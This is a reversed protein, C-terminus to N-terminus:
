RIQLPQTFNLSVEDTYGKGRRSLVRLSVAEGNHKWRRYRKCISFNEAISHRGTSYLRQYMAAIWSVTIHKTGHTGAKIKRAPVTTM